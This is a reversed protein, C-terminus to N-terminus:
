DAAHLIRAPLALASELVADGVGQAVWAGDTLMRVVGRGDLLVSGDPVSALEAPDTLIRSPPRWGAAIVADAYGEFTLVPLGAEVARDAAGRLVEVLQDRATM